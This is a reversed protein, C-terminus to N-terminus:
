RICLMVLILGPRTHHSSPTVYYLHVIQNIREENLLKRNRRARIITGSTRRGDSRCVWIDHCIEFRDLLFIAREKLDRSIRRYGM